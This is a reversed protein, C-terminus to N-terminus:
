VNRKCSYEEADLRLICVGKLMEPHESFDDFKRKTQHEMIKTLARGKEKEDEVIHVKGSGIISVYRYSYQCPLKGEVLGLEVDMEFGAMPHERILEIKKGERACHFYLTLRDDELEYGMNVPVIYPRDVDQLGLRCVKMDELIRKIEEPDTVQREKRRMETM